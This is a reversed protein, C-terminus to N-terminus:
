KVVQMLGISNNDADKVSATLMGGGVDQVEQQVSAGADVLSQLTEKINNVHWYPTPGTMGKSHGNPDLAIDQEGVKFGVYYAEDAYPKVGFLTSFLTKAGALDKVPYVLTKISEM